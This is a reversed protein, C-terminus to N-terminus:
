EYYLVYPPPSSTSRGEVWKESGGLCGGTTLLGLTQQLFGGGATKGKEGSGADPVSHPLAHYGLLEAWFYGRGESYESGLEGGLLLLSQQGATYSM